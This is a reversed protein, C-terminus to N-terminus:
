TVSTWLGARVSIEIAEPVLVRSECGFDAAHPQIAWLLGEGCLDHLGHSPCCPSDVLPRHRTGEDVEGQRRPVGRVVTLQIFELCVERKEIPAATDGRVRAIRVAEFADTRGGEVIM